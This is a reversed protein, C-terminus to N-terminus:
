ASRRLWSPSSDDEWDFSKADSAPVPPELPIIPAPLREVVGYSASDLVYDDELVLVAHQPTILREVQDPLEHPEPTGTIRTLAEAHLSIRWAQLEPESLPAAACVPCPTLPRKPHDCRHCSVTIQM